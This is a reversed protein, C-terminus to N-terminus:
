NNNKCYYYIEKDTAGSSIDSPLFRVLLRKRVDNSICSDFYQLTSMKCYASIINVDTECSQLEEKIRNQIEDDILLDEARIM